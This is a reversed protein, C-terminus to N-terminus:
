FDHLFDVFFSLSELFHFDVHSDLFDDIVKLIDDWFYDFVFELWIFDSENTFFFLEGLLGILDQSLNLCDFLFNVPM